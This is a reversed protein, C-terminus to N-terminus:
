RIEGHAPMRSGGVTSGANAAAGTAYRRRYHPMFFTTRWFTRSLMFRCHTKTWGPLLHYWRYGAAEFCARCPDGHGTQMAAALTADRQCRSTSLATLIRPHPGYRVLQDAIRKFEQYRSRADLQTLILLLSLGALIAPRLVPADIRGGCIAAAIVQGLTLTHLLPSASLYGVAVALLASAVAERRPGDGADPM